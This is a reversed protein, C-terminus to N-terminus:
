RKSGSYRGSRNQVEETWIHAQYNKYHVFLTHFVTANWVHLRTCRPFKSRSSSMSYDVISAYLFSVLVNSGRCDSSKQHQVYSGLSGYIFITSVFTYYTNQWLVSNYVLCKVLLNKTWRKKKVVSTRKVTVNSVNPEKWRWWILFSDSVRFVPPNCLFKM